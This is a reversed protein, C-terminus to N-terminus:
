GVVKAFLWEVLKHDLTPKSKGNMWRILAAHSIGIEKAVKHPKLRNVQVYLWIMEGIRERGPKLDKM